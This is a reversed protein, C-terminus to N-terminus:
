DSDVDPFVEALCEAGLATTFWASLETPAAVAIRRRVPHPLQGFRHELLQSLSGALGKAEGQEIGQELGQELGQEIGQEIGQELGLAKGKEILEQVVQGVMAQGRGPKAQEAATELTTTQVEWVSM